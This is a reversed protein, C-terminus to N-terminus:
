LKRPLRFNERAKADAIIPSALRDLSAPLRVALLVMDHDGGPDMLVIGSIPTSDGKLFTETGMGDRNPPTVFDVTFDDRYTLQDDPYPSTPYVLKEGGIREDDDIVSQVYPAAKPFLRAAIRAVEDATPALRLSGCSTM